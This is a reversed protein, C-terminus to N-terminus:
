RKQRHPEYAEFYLTRRFRDSNHFFVPVEFSPLTKKSKRVTQKYRLLLKCRGCCMYWFEGTVHSHHFCRKHIGNDFKVDCNRCTKLAACERLQEPTLRKMPTNRRLIEDIRTERATLTNSSIEGDRRAGYVFVHRPQIGSIRVGNFMIRVSPVHKKTKKDDDNTIVSTEFDAYITFPVELSNGFNKFKMVNEGPTPYVTKQAPHQSCMDEHAILSHEQKFAYLCFKCVFAKENVVM